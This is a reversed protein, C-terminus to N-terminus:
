YLNISRLQYVVDSIQIQVCGPNWYLTTHESDKKTKISTIFSRTDMPAIDLFTLKNSYRLRVNIAGDFNLDVNRELKSLLAKIYEATNDEGFIKIKGEAM